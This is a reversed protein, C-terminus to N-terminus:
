HINIRAKISVYLEEKQAFCGDQARKLRQPIHTLAQAQSIYALDRQIYTLILTYILALVKQDALQQEQTLVGEGYGPDIAPWLNKNVM